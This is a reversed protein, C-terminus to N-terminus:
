IAHLQNFLREALDSSMGKIKQLDEISAQKLGPMGGFQKLLQQRKKAGIGPIDEIRSTIRAKDRRKRHNVLAFRHAEDRVRQIFHLLPSNEPLRKGEPFASCFLVEEGAKRAKGKAISVPYVDKIKFEELVEVAVKLQGKGGDIFLIDPSVIDEDTYRKVRRTIAENLAGYDDSKAAYKINFKRYDKKSAGKDDFVVCSVVTSDGFTHSVDFCEVKKPIKPLEFLQQLGTLLELHNAHELEDLLLSELANDEAMRLWRQRIGRVSSSIKVKRGSLASLTEELINRHELRTNVIVSDPVTSQESLYFHSIFRECIKDLEEDEHTKPFFRKNGVVNGNRVMLIQVCTKNGRMALAIVDADGTKGSVIQQEQLRRLMQIQDRILAAKEFNKETSALDMKKALSVFLEQSKGSLFLEADHVNKLYEEKSIYGVCSGSCRKIQHLLCARSRHRFTSNECSRLQFVKQLIQLSERATSAQPYPGFYKHNKLDRRGRCIDMVPYEDSKTIYIYPYSKDDRFLINYRPKLAKILNNELLLAETETSTLTVEIRRANKVLNRTKTDLQNLDKPFYSRLRKKLSIAKGVYIVKGSKSLFQYVGPKNPTNKLFETPNFVEANM